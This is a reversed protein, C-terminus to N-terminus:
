GGTWRGDLAVNSLQFLVTVKNHSATGFMVHPRADRMLSLNQFQVEFPILESFNLLLSIMGLSRDPSVQAIECLYCAEMMLAKWLSLYPENRM